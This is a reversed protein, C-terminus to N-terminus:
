QLELGRDLAIKVIRRAVVVPECDGWISAVLGGDNAEVLYDGFVQKRVRLSGITVARPRRDKAEQVLGVIRDAEPQLAADDYSVDVFRNGGGLIEGSKDRRVRGYPSAIKQVKKRSVGPAKIRILITSGLSYLDSRVSVDRSSLGMTKLAARIKAAAEVTSESGTSQTVAEILGGCACAGDYATTGEMPRLCRNCRMANQEASM